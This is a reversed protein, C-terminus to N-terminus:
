GGARVAQLAEARDHEPQDILAAIDALAFGLQRWVPIERLRLLEYRGHLRIGPSATRNLPKLLGVKDYHRLTRITVGALDAVERLTKVAGASSAEGVGDALGSEM